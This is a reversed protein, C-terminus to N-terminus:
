SLEDEFDIVANILEIQPDSRLRYVIDILMAENLRAENALVGIVAIARERDGSEAIPDKAPPKAPVPEAARMDKIITGLYVLDTAGTIGQNELSQWAQQPFYLMLLAEDIWGAIQRVDYPTDLALRIPNAMSLNYVDYVDEESLRDEIVENIGRIQGLQITRDSPAQGSIRRALRAIYRLALQPSFGALFAVSL